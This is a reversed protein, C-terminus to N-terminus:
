TTLSASYGSSKETVLRLINKDTMVYPSLSPKSQKTEAGLSEGSSADEEKLHKIAAAEWAGLKSSLSSDKPRGTLKSVSRAGTM